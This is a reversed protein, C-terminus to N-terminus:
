LFFLLLLASIVVTAINAGKSHKGKFALVILVVSLVGIIFLADTLEIMGIGRARFFPFRWLKAGIVGSSLWYFGGMGGVFLFASLALIVIAGGVRLEFGDSQKKFAPKQENKKEEEKEM